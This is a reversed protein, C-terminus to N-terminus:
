KQMAQWGLYEDLSEKKELCIKRNKESINGM